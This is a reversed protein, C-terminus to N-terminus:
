GIATLYIVNFIESFFNYLFAFARKINLLRRGRGEGVRGSWRFGQRNHFLM